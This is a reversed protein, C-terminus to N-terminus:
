CGVGAVGRGCVMCPVDVKVGTVGDGIGADPIGSDWGIRAGGIGGVGAGVMGITGREGVGSATTVVVIRVTDSTV